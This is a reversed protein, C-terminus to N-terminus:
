DEFIKCHSHSPNLACEIMFFNSPSEFWKQTERALATNDIEIYLDDDAALHGCPACTCNACPKKCTM